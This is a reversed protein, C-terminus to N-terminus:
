GHLPTPHYAMFKWTGNPRVWVNLCLNHLRKEVGGATIDANMEGLVLATDGEIAIRTIPHDIAHYVYYGTRLKEAYSDLTDTVGSSHTYMLDPHCCAVFADIDGRVLADYRLDELRRVEREDPTM